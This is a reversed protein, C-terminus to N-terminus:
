SHFVSFTPKETPEPNVNQKQLEVGQTDTYEVIVSTPTITSITISTPYNGVRDKLAVALGSLLVLMSEVLPCPDAMFEDISLNSIKQAAFGILIKFNLIPLDCWRTMGVFPETESVGVLLADEDGWKGTMLALHDADIILTAQRDAVYDVLNISIM